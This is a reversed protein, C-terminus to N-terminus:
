QMSYVKRLFGLRVKVHMDAIKRDHDSTGGGGLGSLFNLQDVNM